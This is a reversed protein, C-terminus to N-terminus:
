MTSKELSTVGKILAKRDSSYYKIDSSLNTIDSAQLLPPSDVKIVRMCIGFLIYSPIDTTTKCTAVTLQQTTFKRNSLLFWFLRKTLYISPHRDEHRGAPPHHPPQQRTGEQGRPKLSRQGSKGEKAPNWKKRQLKLKEFLRKSLILEATSRCERM